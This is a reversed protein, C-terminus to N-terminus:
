EGKALVKKLEKNKREAAEIKMEAQMMKDFLYAARTSSASKGSLWNTSEAGM